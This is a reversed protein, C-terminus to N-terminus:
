RANVVREEEEPERDLLSGMKKISSTMKDARDLMLDYVNSMLEERIVKREEDNSSNSLKRELETIKRSTACM